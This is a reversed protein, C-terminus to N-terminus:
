GRGPIASREEGKPTNGCAQSFSGASPGSRDAAFVLSLGAAACRQLWGRFLWGGTGGAPGPWGASWSRRGGGPWWCLLPAAAALGLPGLASPASILEGLSAGAVGWWPEWCRARGCAPRCCPSVVGGVLAWPRVSTLGLPHGCPAGAWCWGSPWRGGLWRLILAPSGIRQGPPPGVWLGSGTGPVSRCFSEIGPLVPLLAPSRWCSSDAAGAWWLCPGRALLEPLSLDIVALTAGSAAQGIPRPIAGKAAPPWGRSEQHDRRGPTWRGPLGTKSAGTKRAPPLQIV